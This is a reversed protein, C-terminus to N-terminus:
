KNHDRVTRGTYSVSPLPVLTAEHKEIEYEVLMNVNLHWSPGSGQGCVEYFIFYLGQWKRYISMEHRVFFECIREHKHQADTSHKEFKRFLNIRICKRIAARVVGACAGSDLGNKLSPEHMHDVETSKLCHRCSAISICSYTHITPTVSFNLLSSRCNVTQATSVANLTVWKLEPPWKIFSFLLYQWKCNNLQM